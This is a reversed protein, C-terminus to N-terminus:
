RWGPTNASKNQPAPHRESREIITEAAITNFRQLLTKVPLRNVPERKVRDRRHVRDRQDTCRDALHKRCTLALGVGPQLHHERNQVAQLKVRHQLLRGPQQCRDDLLTEPTTLLDPQPDSALEHPVPHDPSSARVGAVPVLGCGAPKVTPFTMDRGVRVRLHDDRDPHSGPVVYTM